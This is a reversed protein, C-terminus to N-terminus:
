IPFPMWFRVNSRPASSIYPGDAIRCVAGIRNEWRCIRVVSSYMNYNANVHDLYRSFRVNEGTTVVWVVCNTAGLTIVAQARAM